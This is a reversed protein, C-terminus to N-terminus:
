RRASGQEQGPAEAEEQEPEQSFAPSSGQSLVLFLGLGLIGLVRLTWWHVNTRLKDLNQEGLRSM